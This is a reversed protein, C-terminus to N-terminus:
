NIQFGFVPVFEPPFLDDFHVPGSISQARRQLTDLKRVMEDLGTIKIM